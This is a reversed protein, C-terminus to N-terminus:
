SSHDPASREGRLFAGDNTIMKQLFGLVAKVRAVHVLDDHASLWVDRMTSLEPLVPVLAPNQAAVFSPLMAIGQGSSVAAYQAILSTSRFGVNAPRFVDSLWRNERVHVYEDIFDIFDHEELDRISCPRARDAFYAEAAYLSVRFEGAKHTQLSRGGPRFFTVFVEAERRTLDLTRTDTILEVQVGPYQKRFAYLKPTLYLSGIGEMTAIRVAGGADEGVGLCETLANAQNEMGEAHRLLRSGMETLAFGTRSRKFLNAGLSRELERVRRGVTTHDVKLAKAARGLNKHRAVALFYVIDNWDYRPPTRAESM